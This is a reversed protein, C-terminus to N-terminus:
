AAASCLSPYLCAPLSFRDMSMNELKKNEHYNLSIGSKKDSASHSKMM